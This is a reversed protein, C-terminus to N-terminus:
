MIALDVNSENRIIKLLGIITYLLHTYKEKRFKRIISKHLEETLKNNWINEDKIGSGSTKKDFVKDAISALRHKYWNYKLNKAINFIKDRM